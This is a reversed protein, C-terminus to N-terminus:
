RARAVRDQRAVVRGAGAHPRRRFSPSGARRRACEARSRSRVLLGVRRVMRRGQLVCARPGRGCRGGDDQRDRGARRDDYLPASGATDHPRSHDRRPRCRAHAAGTSKGGRAAGDPVATASPANERTVPAVFAYGRGPHNAIYRKGARGDGLTKRLAAVHVRLAAEEVVTDPWARAILEEKSITQGAREILAVLIDFSRSGLRLAKGDEFLTRQAPILRFSGFAFVEEDM